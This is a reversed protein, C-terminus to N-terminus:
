LGKFDNEIHCVRFITKWMVFLFFNHGVRPITKKDRRNSGNKCIRWKAKKPCNLLRPLNEGSPSPILFVAALGSIGHPFLDIKISYFFVFEQPVMQRHTEGAAM